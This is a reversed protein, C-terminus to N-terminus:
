DRYWWPPISNSDLKKLADIAGQQGKKIADAKQAEIKAMLYRHEDFRGKAYAGGLISAVLVALSIWKGIPSNIFSWVAWIVTM